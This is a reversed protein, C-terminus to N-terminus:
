SLGHRFGWVHLQTHNVIRKTYCLQCSCFIYLKLSEVQNTSAINTLTWASEFQLDMSDFSTLFDVLKPLVGTGLVESVPPDSKMSLLKRLGKVANLVSVADEGAVITHALNPIDAAAKSPVLISSDSGTSAPGRRKALGEERKLKRLSIGTHARRCRSKTFDLGNRFTLKTNM